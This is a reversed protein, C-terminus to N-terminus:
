MAFANGLFRGILHLDGDLRPHRDGASGHVDLLGEAFLELVESALDCVV